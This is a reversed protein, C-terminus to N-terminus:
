FRRFNDSNDANSDFNSDFNSDIKPPMFGEPDAELDKGGKLKFYVNDLTRATENYVSDDPHSYIDLTTKISAHGMQPAVIKPNERQELLITAFTHRLTYWTIGAEDLDHKKVFRQILSRLSSYTRMKGTKSDPFVYESKLKTEACTQKWKVLIDVVADALGITRVGAPTKTVGEKRSRSIVNWDEDFEVIRKQATKVYLKKSDFDINKWKLTLMEQPRLGTLMCTIILTELLPKGKIFRLVTERQEHNLALTKKGNAEDPASKKVVVEDLPNVKVHNQRVAYKFFNNLLNKMKGLYDSSYGKRKKDAKYQKSLNGFRGEEDVTAQLKENFFKQIKKYDVVRIDFSGFAPFIHLKLMTRQKEATVSTITPAVCLDYWERLLIEFNREKNATETSYGEQFVHSTLASVKKAVEQRSTGYINKRQPKGEANYGVTVMGCWRGDKRQFISGENNGRRGSQKKSEKLKPM